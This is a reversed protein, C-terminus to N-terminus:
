GGLVLEDSLAILSWSSPPYEAICALLVHCSADAPPLRAIVLQQAATGRTPRM